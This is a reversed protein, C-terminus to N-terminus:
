GGPWQYISLRLDQSREQELYRFDRVLVTFKERMPLSM